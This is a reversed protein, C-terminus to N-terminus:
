FLGIGLGQRRPTHWPQFLVQDICASSIGCGRDQVAFVAWGHM